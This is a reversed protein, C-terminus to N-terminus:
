KDKVANIITGIDKAGFIGMFVNGTSILIWDGEYPDNIIYHTNNVATYNIDSDRFFNLFTKTLDKINVSEDSLIFAYVSGEYEREIVNNVFDLGRYNEKIFRTKVVTGLDPFKDFLKFSGEKEGISKRVTYSIKLAVPKLLTEKSFASLKVYYKDIFFTLTNTGMFGMTDINVSESSDGSEDVLVGFAQIPKGMDYIDVVIVSKKSNSDYDKVWLKEFGSSIFFEAHGNIYEHLNNKNFTRTQSASKYGDIKVPFFANKAEDRKVTFDILAPDYHQGTLYIVLAILPLLSILLLKIWNVKSRM